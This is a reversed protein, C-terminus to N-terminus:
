APPIILPAAELGVEQAIELLEDYTQEDGIFSWFPRGIVLDTGLELFLNYDPIYVNGDGAPNYSMGAYAQSHQQFRMAMIMLIARKMELFTGKNPKVTKMEFYVESGDHRRIFLDSRVQRSTGGPYQLGLVQATDAARSPVRKPPPGDMQALIATIQAEAAPQVEGTVLYNAEAAQNFQRAVLLAMRQFWLGLRTSFSRESLTTGFLAPMLRAHFPQADAAPLNGLNEEIYRTVEQLLFTRIATRTQDSLPL